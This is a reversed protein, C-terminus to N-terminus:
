KEGMDNVTASQYEDSLGCCWVFLFGLSKEFVIKLLRSFIIHRRTNLLRQRLAKVILTIPQVLFRCLCSVYRRFQRCHRRTLYTANQDVMQDVMSVMIKDGWVFISSPWHSPGHFVTSSVRSHRVRSSEFRQGRGESPTPRDHFRQDFSM